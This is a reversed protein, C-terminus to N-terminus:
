SKDIAPINQTQMPPSDCVGYKEKIINVLNEKPINLSTFAETRRMRNKGRRDRLSTETSKEKRKYQSDQTTGEPLTVKGAVYFVEGITESELLQLEIYLM